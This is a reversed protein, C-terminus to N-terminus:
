KLDRLFTPVVVPEAVADLLEELLLPDRLRVGLDALFYALSPVM